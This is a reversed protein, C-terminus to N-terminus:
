NRYENLFSEGLRVVNIGRMRGISSHVTYVTADRLGALWMLEFPTKRNLIVTGPFARRYDTTEKPHPKIYNSQPADQLLSRYMDIKRDETMIGLESFPQTAIIRASTRLTIVAPDYLFLDSLAQKDAPTMADYYAEIDLPLVKASIPNPAASPEKLYVHFFLKGEGVFSQGFLRKLIPYPHLSNFTAYVKAINLYNVEGHELLNIEKGLLGFLSLPSVEHFLFLRKMQRLSLVRSKLIAFLLRLTVQYRPATITLTYIGCTEIAQHNLGPDLNVKLIAAQQESQRVTLHKSLVFSVLLEYSNRAEFILM